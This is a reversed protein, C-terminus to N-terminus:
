LNSRGHQLSTRYTWGVILDIQDWVALITVSKIEAFLPSLAVSEARLSHDEREILHFTSRTLLFITGCSWQM